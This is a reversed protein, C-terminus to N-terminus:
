PRSILEDASMESAGGLSNIMEDCGSGLILRWRKLIEKNEM